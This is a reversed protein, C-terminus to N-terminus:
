DHEYHGVKTFPARGIREGVLHDIGQLEHRGGIPLRGVAVRGGADQATLHPADNRRDEQMKAYQM